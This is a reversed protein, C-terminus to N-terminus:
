TRRGVKAGLFAKILQFEVADSVSLRFIIDQNRGLRNVCVPERFKGRAGMSRWIESSWTRGGDLSYEIMIQPDLIASTGAGGNITLELPGMKINAGDAHVYPFQIVCVRFNGDYDYVNPSLEFLKGTLSDGVLQKDAFRIGTTAQWTNRQYTKREHWKRNQIDFVWTSSLGFTFAVFENGYEKFTFGYSGDLFDADNIAKEVDLSSIRQGNEVITLDSGLWYVNDKSKTVTDRAGCGVDFFVGGVATYPIGSGFAFTETTKNGMIWLLDGKRELAVAEDSETEANAFDLLDFSIKEGADPTIKNVFYEGPTPADKRLFVFQGQFYRLDQVPFPSNVVVVGDDDILYLEGSEGVTLIYDFGAAMPMNGGNSIVGWEVSNFDTDVQYVRQGSAVYLNGEWPKHARIPGTGMDVQELLGAAGEIYFPSRADAPSKVAYANILRSNTNDVATDADSGTPLPIGPM